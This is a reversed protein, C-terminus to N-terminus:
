EPDQDQEAHNTDHEQEATVGPLRRRHTQRGVPIGAGQVLQGMRSRVQRPWVLDLEEEVQRAPLRGFSHRVLQPMIAELYLNTRALIRGVPQAEGSALHEGLQAREPGPTLAQGRQGLAAVPDVVPPARLHLVPSQRVVTRGPLIAAVGLCPPEMGTTRSIRARLPESTTVVPGSLETSSAAWSMFVRPM